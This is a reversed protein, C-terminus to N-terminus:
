SAACIIPDHDLSSRARIRNLYLRVDAETERALIKARRFGFAELTRELYHADVLWHHIEVVLMRVSRLFNAEKEVFSAESGEIDIKLLDCPLDDFHSRWATDLSLSPVEIRQWRNRTIHASPSKPFRSSGADDPHLFFADTKATTEAGVVGWMVRVNEFGNAGSTGTRRKSWELIRM